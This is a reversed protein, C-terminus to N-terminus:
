RIFYFILAGLVTFMSSLFQLCLLERAACYTLSGANDSCHGLDSSHYLNLEQGLFKQVGHACGFFYYYIIIKFFFNFVCVCLSVIDLALSVTDIKGNM